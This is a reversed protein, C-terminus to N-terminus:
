KNRYRARLAQKYLKGNDHRPLAADFDVSRPCKFHAARERCYALLEAALEPSARYNKHLEVVAKVEEGWEENAIGIVGVDAVAPHGLLVAEVEAPYINVGGSVILNASRDTLFLYGDDDLYGVDGLTYHADRYAKDTKGDDKYYTFRGQEPAALFIAGAQHPPLERGTDDVIKIHGPTLPKGVTGPKLLWTHSDVAAGSGETAAYYEHVIPGLWAILKHKTTVPCAAAGHLVYKLSSLDYRKRVEEPLSVLRHLMTPVMHTHTVRHTQILQLAREADWGDMLVVTAGRFHPGALSFSLPAAHYLPGTCLHVSEGPRYDEQLGLANPALPSIGPRLVGKPRGTTGSTYLMSTGLVADDIDSENELGLATECAEFGAVGGGIAIRAVAQPSCAAAQEALAAFRAEAILAKADCDNVIYGAEAGTLHWNVPTLRWGGRRTAWLVEAFECRNACLLAVGDGARLGRSRLLRVWRNARANLEAFTLQAFSLDAGVAIVAPYAPMLKAWVAIAMGISAASAMLPEALAALAQSNMSTLHTRSTAMSLRM